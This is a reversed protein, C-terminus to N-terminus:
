PAVALNRISIAGELAWIKRASFYWIASDDDPLFCDSISKVMNDLDPRAQHPKGIMRQKKAKSWSQPMPLHFTVEFAAGLTFGTENAARQLCDKFAWYRMVAPRQQWRDSRTMRPKAVPDILFLHASM